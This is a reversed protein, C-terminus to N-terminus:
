SICCKKKEEIAERTENRINKAKADITQQIEKQLKQRGVEQEKMFQDIRKESQNKSIIYEEYKREDEKTKLEKLEAILKKLTEIREEEEKVRQQYEAAYKELREKEQKEKEQRLKAAEFEQIEKEAKVYMENTYCVGNNAKVNDEVKCILEWVQKEQKEGKLKNNFALVRGGCKQIFQRLQAPSDELHKKLTRDNSDLEDKRTFIVIFYNYANEGFYHVFHDVSRQEEDTFRSTISM